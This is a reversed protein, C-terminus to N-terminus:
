EEEDGGTYEEITKMYEYDNMDNIELAREVTIGYNQQLANQIQSFSFDIDSVIDLEKAEDYYEYYKDVGRLLSDLAKKQRGLEINNEYGEYLREVYMVTYIREKLEKDKEKVEVGKIEDYAKHYKQSAFYNAAHEIALRYNFDVTSLYFFGVGGLFLSFIFIVMPKNLKKEPEANAAEAERAAKKKAKKEAKVRQKEADARKKDADKKSKDAKDKEAKAKKKEADAEKKAKKAAKKEEIAKLEEETPEDDEDPEGFLIEMFTRKKKKPKESIDQIDNLDDLGSADIGPDGLAADLSDADSEAGGTIDGNGDGSGEEDLNLMSFLDDEGLADGDDESSNDSVGEEPDDGGLLDDLSNTVEEESSDEDSNVDLADELSSDADDEDSSSDENKESIDKADDVSSDDELLSDLFSDADFNDENLDDTNELAAGNENDSSIDDKSADQIDDDLGESGVAEQELGESGLEESGSEAENQIDSDDGKGIGEEFLEDFDSAGDDSAGDDLEDGTIDSFSPIELDGDFEKLLSDFDSDSVDDSLKTIDLDDFDIDAFDFDGIDLDALNDLKDLEDIQEESFNIDVDQSGGEADLELDMNFAEERSVSQEALIDEKEKLLQEDLENEIKDDIEKDLSFENLLNDLYNEDM